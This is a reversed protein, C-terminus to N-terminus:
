AIQNFPLQQMMIDDAYPISYYNSNPNQYPNQQTFAPQKTQPNYQTNPTYAQPQQTQPYYQPNIGNQQQPLQQDQAIKQAEEQAQAVQESYSKGIIRSTLWEGAVWGAMSGIGPCIASGVAAGISAGILRAGAKVTEKIGTFLGQEKTAKFINPLEFLMMSVSGIFPLKSGIGKFFGKTMGKAKALGSLGEGGQVIADKMDPLFKKFNGLFNKFFSGKGNKELAKWGAELSQFISAGSQKASRMASGTVEAGTGLVLEPLVQAVRGAYRYTTRLTGTIGSIGLM